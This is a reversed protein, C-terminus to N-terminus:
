VKKIDKQRHWVGGALYRFYGNNNECEKIVSITGAKFVDSDLSEIKDGTNFAQKEKGSPIKDWKGRIDMIEAIIKVRNTNDFSIGQTKNLEM